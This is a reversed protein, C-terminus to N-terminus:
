RALAASQPFSISSPTFIVPVHKVGYIIASDVMELPTDPVRRIGPLRELLAGLATRAELRALHAGLCFHVGSGFALHVNPPREINFQEPQPFVQEDFNASHLWGLVTQDKHIEQDRLRMTDTARRVVFRAPSRMRLVEEVAGPMLHPEARLREIVEPHEDFSIVANSILNTTTINGAVLLLVCFGLLENQTLQQGDLQAAILKSMLDQEPQRRRQAIMQEFYDCM